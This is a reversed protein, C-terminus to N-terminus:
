GYVATQMDGTSSELGAVPRGGTYVILNGFSPAGFVSSGFFIDMSPPVELGLFSVSNM